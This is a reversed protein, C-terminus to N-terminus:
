RSRQSVLGAVKVIDCQMDDQLIKLAQPPTAPTRPPPPPAAPHPPPPSPLETM